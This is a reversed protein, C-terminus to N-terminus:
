QIEVLSYRESHLIALQHYGPDEVTAHNVLLAQEVHAVDDLLHVALLHAVVGFHELLHQLLGAATHHQLDQGAVLLWVCWSLDASPPPSSCM